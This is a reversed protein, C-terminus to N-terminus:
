ITPWDDSASRLLLRGFHTFDYAPNLELVRLWAQVANDTEGLEILCFGLAHHVFADQARHQLAEKYADRGGAWNRENLCGFGTGCAKAWSELEPAPNFPILWDSRMALLKAACEKLNQRGPSDGFIVISQLLDRLCRNMDAPHPDPAYLLRLASRFYDRSEILSETQMLMEDSPSHAPDLELARRYCAAASELQGDAGYANGLLYHGLAGAGSVKVAKTLAEIAMAAQRTELYCVGLERWAEGNSADESLLETLLEIARAYDGQRLAKTALDFKHASEINAMVNQAPNGRSEPM